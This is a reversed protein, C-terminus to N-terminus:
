VDETVEYIQNVGHAVAKENKTVEIEIDDQSSPQQKNEGAQKEM